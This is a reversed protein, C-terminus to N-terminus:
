RKYTNIVELITKDTKLEPAYTFLENHKEYDLVLADQLYTLAEQRKGAEVLLASMRYHLEAIEPFYKIGETVAYIADQKYGANMLCNSYDLWVDYDSYNCEIVKQYAGLAEEFFGMKEQIEAFVYWYDPNEPQLELAKKVYHLAETLRNQKQLVIGISVWADAMNPDLKVARNYNVLANSHDKLNEYCEGIYYYASPDPQEYNFTEKYTDIADNYRGMMALSNGKNFYGSSFETDITLAYEYAQVAKEYEASRNFAIGLNFWGWKNYPFDDTFKSFFEIAEANKGSMEFCIAIEGILMENQPNLAFGKKLYFLANDYENKNIFESGLSAYVDDPTGSYRLASKFNEIAQESLGMQSYIYGRTMYLEGDTPDTKEVDNLIKLAETTKQQSALYQARSIKFSINDPYQDAAADLAQKLMEPNQSQFYHEIIEEYDDSDFFFFSGNAVMKEFRLILEKFEDANYDDNNENMNGPSFLPCEHLQPM